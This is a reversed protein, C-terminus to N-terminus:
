VSHIITITIQLKGRTPMTGIRHGKWSVFYRTTRVKKKEANKKKAFKLIEHKFVSLLVMNHHMM